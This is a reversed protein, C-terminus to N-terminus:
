YEHGAKRAPMKAGIDKQWNQLMQWLEEAKEPHTFKLDNSESIDEELNKLANKLFASPVAFILTDAEAVVHNIDTSVDISETKLEISSLYNPNHHLRKIQEVSDENRMWWGVYDNHETLMKVIATAWSGGGIVAIKM